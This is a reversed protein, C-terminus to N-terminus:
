LWSAFKIIVLHCFQKRIPTLNNYLYVFLKFRYFRYNITNKLVNKLTYANYKKFFILILM